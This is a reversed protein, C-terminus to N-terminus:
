QISSPFFFFSFSGVLHHLPVSTFERGEGSVNPREVVGHTGSDRCRLKRNSLFDSDSEAVVIPRSVLARNAVDNPVEFVLSVIVVNLFAALLHRLSIKVVIQLSNLNSRGLGHTGGSLRASTAGGHKPRQTKVRVAVARHGWLGLGPSRERSFGM